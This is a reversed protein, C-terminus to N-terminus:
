SVTLKNEQLADDKQQQLIKKLKKKYLARKLSSIRDIFLKGQLHDCEHQVVRALFDEAEFELSKGQADQARVVIKQFRQVKTEYDIVSLCGEVDVQSGQTEIIEPNVLAMAQRDEDDDRESINIVMVQKPVGVQNAALGAGPADFMTDVMDNILQRLGDDFETVPVTKKKLIKNPYTLITRIM